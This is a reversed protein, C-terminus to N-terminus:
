INLVQQFYGILKKTTNKVDYEALYEQNIQPKMQKTILKILCVTLQELQGYNFSYHGLKALMKDTPSDAPTIGIIPTLSGAYDVVKSSLFPSDKIDADIVVLLDSLKMQRLSEEYSVPPIIEVMDTIEYDQAMQKLNELKYGNYNGAGGILNLKIESKLEPKIIMVKKLAKFLLAPNREPYFSGIHSIIFRISEGKNINNVNPYDKSDYCHPIVGTKALYVVPYKKIVLKEAAQNTFIVKDSQDIIYKELKFVRQAERGSLSKYPHDYWPDSFHAIFKIGIKEKLMAGLINSVQPNAFSFIINLNYKKIVKKTINFIKQYYKKELINRVGPIQNLYKNIKFDPIQYIPANIQWQGCSELSVIVPKLGYNMWSPIMKGILISQPRNLPPTYFSLCLPRIPQQNNNM